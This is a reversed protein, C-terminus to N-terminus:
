NFFQNHAYVCYSGLSVNEFLKLINNEGSWSEVWGVKVCPIFHFDFM